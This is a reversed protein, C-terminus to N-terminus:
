CWFYTVEPLLLGGEGTVTTVNPMPSLFVSHFEGAGASTASIPPAALPAPRDPLIEASSASADDSASIRLGTALTSVDDM